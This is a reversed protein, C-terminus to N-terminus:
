KDVKAVVWPLPAVQANMGGLLNNETNTKTLPGIYDFVWSLVQAETLKDYSTYAGSQQAPNFQAFVTATKKLAGDTATCTAAVKWAFDTLGGVSPLIVINQISWATTTM